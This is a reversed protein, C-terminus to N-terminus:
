VITIGLSRDQQGGLLGRYRGCLRDLEAMRLLARLAKPCALFGVSREPSNIVSL